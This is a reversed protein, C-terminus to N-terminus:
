LGCMSSQNTMYFATSMGLTYLADRDVFVLAWAGRALARGVFSCSSGVVILVVRIRVRLFLCFLACGCVCVYGCFALVTIRALSFSCARFALARVAYRVCVLRVAGVV